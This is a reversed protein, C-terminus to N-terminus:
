VAKERRLYADVESALMKATGEIDPSSLIASKVAIGRAGSGALECVNSADVGGAAIVPIKVAECVDKLVSVSVLDGGEDFEQTTAFIPGVGVYNAGARAAREAEEASRVSVGVIAAAELQKRAEHCEDVTRVHVGDVGSTKAAAIDGEIILPINAVRCVPALNRLVRVLSITDLGRNRMRVFTAGGVIAEAVCAHMTRGGLWADDAVLCLTCAREVDARTWNKYVKRILPM